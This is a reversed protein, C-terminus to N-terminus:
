FPLRGGGKPKHLECLTEFALTCSQTANPLLHSSSGEAPEGVSVKKHSKDSVKKRSILLIACMRTAHLSVAPLRHAGSRSYTAQRFAQGHAM